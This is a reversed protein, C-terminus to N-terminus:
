ANVGWTLHVKIVGGDENKIIGAHIAAGCLSSSVTYIFLDTPTKGASPGYVNLVLNDRICNKPCIVVKLTKSFDQPATLPENDLNPFLDSGTLQCKIPSDAEPFAVDEVVAPDSKSENSSDSDKEDKKKTEDKEDKKEKEDKKKEKKKDDNKM